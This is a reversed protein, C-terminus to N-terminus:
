AEPAASDPASAPQRMALVFLSLAGLVILVGLIIHVMTVHMEGLAYQVLSLGFVGFAHGIGGKNGSLKAYRLAALSALLSTVVFLMAFGAHAPRIGGDSTLLSGLIGLVLAVAASIGSTIRYLRQWTNLAPNANVM